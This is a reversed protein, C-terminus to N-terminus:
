DCCPAYSNCPIGPNSVPITTCGHHVYPASHPSQLALYDPIPNPHKTPGPSGPGIPEHRRLWSFLGHQEPGPKAASLRADTTRITSTPPTQAGPHPVSAIGRPVSSNPIAIAGHPATTAIHPTTATTNVTPPPMPASHQAFLPTTALLTLGFLGLSRMACRRFISGILRSACATTFLQGPM